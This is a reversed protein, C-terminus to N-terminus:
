REEGDEDFARTSRPKYYFEEKYRERYELRHEDLKNKLEEYQPSSRATRLVNEEYLAILFELRRRRADKM